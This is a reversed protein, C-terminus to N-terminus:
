PQVLTVTLTGRYTGAAPASSPTATLVPYSNYGGTLSTIDGLGLSQVTGTLTSLVATAQAPTLGALASGLAALGFASNAPALMQGVVDNVSTQAGAGTPSVVPLAQVTAQVGNLLTQLATSITPVGTLLTRPTGAPAGAGRTDRAGIGNAYDANTFAGSSQGGLSLAVDTLNNLTQTAAAVVPLNTVTVGTTGLAGCLTGVQAATLGTLGAIAPPTLVGGVTTCGAIAGNLVTRPLVALSGTVDKAGAAPFGVAVDASRIFVGTPSGAAYLNNMTASVTFGATASTLQGIGTDTVNVRFPAPVGARLDLATLPNGALDFLQLQRSGTGAATLSVVASSPSGSVTPDAVAPLAAAALGAALMASTTLRRSTSRNM